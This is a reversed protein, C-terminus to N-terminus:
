ANFICTVEQEHRGCRPRVRGEDIMIAGTVASPRGPGEQTEDNPRAVQPGVRHAM